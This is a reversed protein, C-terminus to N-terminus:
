GGDGRSCSMGLRRGRWWFRRCCCGLRRELAHGAHGRCPRRTEGERRRCTSPAQETHRSARRWVIVAALIYALFRLHRIINAGQRVPTPLVCHTRGTWRRGRSSKNNDNRSPKTLALELRYLGPRGNALSSFLDNPPFLLSSRTYQCAPLLLHFSFKVFEMERAM